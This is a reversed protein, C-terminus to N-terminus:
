DYVRDKFSIISNYPPQHIIITDQFEKILSGVQEIFGANAAVATVM